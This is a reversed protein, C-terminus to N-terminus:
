SASSSCVLRAASTRSAISRSSLPNFRKSVRRFREAHYDSSPAEDAGPIQDRILTVFGSEAADSAAVHVTSFFAVCGYLAGM